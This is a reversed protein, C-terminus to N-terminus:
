EKWESSRQILFGFHSLKLHPQLTFIYKGQLNEDIVLPMVGNTPLGEGHVVRRGSLLDTLDLLRVLHTWFSSQLFCGSMIAIFARLIVFRSMSNSKSCTCGGYHQFNFLKFHNSM